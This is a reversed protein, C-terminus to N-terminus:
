GEQGNTPGLQEKTFPSEGMLVSPLEDQLASLARYNQQPQREIANAETRSGKEMTKKRKNIESTMDITKLFDIYEKVEELITEELWKQTYM